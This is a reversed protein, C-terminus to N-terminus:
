KRNFTRTRVSNKIGRKYDEWKVTNRIAKQNVYRALDKQYRDEKNYPMVFQDIGLKQLKNIRYLDEEETSWYGILVYCMFRYPKIYKIARKLQPILNEKPNDWAIHIRKFHKVSMLAKCKEKNLLRVDIGQFDCPLEWKQLQRIASRWKPNAFFNNDMVKIYEGNPNLNKPDVSVINGEKKNVICYPCKRICGYSFWIISFKCNPYLSWDYDFNEIEKQLKTTLDFGSGGFIMNNKITPKPTYSFISFLYILDYNKEKIGDYIEVKDGQKKHYSSVRMMASNVINPELNWLGIQM